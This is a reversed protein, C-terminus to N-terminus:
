IIQKQEQRAKCAWDKGKENQRPRQKMFVADSIVSVMKQYRGEQSASGGNAVAM